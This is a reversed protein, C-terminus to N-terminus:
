VRTVLHKGMSSLYQIERGSDLDGHFEEPVNTLPINFTEFTELDMVQVEAGVMALVQAKKRDVMPTHVKHKVPHVLSRKRNDFLGVAVIRAKAEGHKGPKSTKYDTIKCPEGEVVIYSGTKLERIETITTTM